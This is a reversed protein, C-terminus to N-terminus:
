RNVRYIEMLGYTPDDVRGSVTASHATLWARFRDGDGGPPLDDFYARMRADLLVVDPDVDDLARDLPEGLDAWNLPVLFSTYDFDELGLWYSHLGLIHAGSPIYGRLQAVYTPYPTASAFELHSLAVGGEVIVGAALVVIVPRLRARGRWVAACGWAIALAFVPLEILTYNVLKLTIFVAFLVPFLVAPVVIARAAADCNLARRALALLSLPLAILVFWWGPRLLWGPGPSGLGPGYRHVEQLMNAMYWSPNLLDFRGAYILTQGRWDPVDSLVYGLYPLWALM